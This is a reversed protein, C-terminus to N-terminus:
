FTKLVKLWKRVNKTESRRNVTKINTKVGQKWYTHPDSYSLGDQNRFVWCHLESECTILDKGSRFRLM